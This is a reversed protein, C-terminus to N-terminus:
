VVEEMNYNSVTESLYLAEVKHRIDEIEELTFGSDNKMDIDLLERYLSLMNKLTKDEKLTSLNKKNVYKTIIAECSRITKVLKRWKERNKKGQITFYNILYFKVKEFRVQIRSIFLEPNYLYLFIVTGFLVVCIALCVSFSLNM